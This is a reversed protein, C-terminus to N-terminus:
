GRPPDCPTPPRWCRARARRQARLQAARGRDAQDRARRGLGAGPRGARRRVPVDPEPGPRARDIDYAVHLAAVAQWVYGLAADRDEEALWPLLLECRWRRRSPTCCASPAATTRTACTPWRRRRRGAPRAAGRGRGDLGLSAVAQEFEDAIDAVAAVRDSILVQRPADEPLYPLDALAEAVGEHGILLPPGPLESTARPGSRWGTRWRSADRRRTPRRWRACARPRHPDARPDGRRDHGAAAAAGVRGGRRRRSPRGGRARLARAVRPLPGGARARRALGGRDAAPEGAAAGRRPAPPLAGGMGRHRRARGLHALAEAVM